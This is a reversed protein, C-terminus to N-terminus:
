DVDGASRQVWSLCKEKLEREARTRPTERFHVRGCAAETYTRGASWQMSESSSTCCLHANAAPSLPVEVASMPTYRAPAGRNQRERGKVTCHYSATGCYTVNVPPTPPDIGAGSTQTDQTDKPSISFGFHTRFSKWWHTHTHTHTHASEHQLSCQTIGLILFASYLFLKM